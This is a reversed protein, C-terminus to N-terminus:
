QAPQQSYPQGTGEPRNSTVAARCDRAFHGPWFCCFCTSRGDHLPLKGAVLPTIVSRNFSCRGRQSKNPVVGKPKPKAMSSRKKEEWLQKSEKVAKRIRKEDDSDTALPEATFCAVTDWSYKEALLIHKNRELLLDRGEKLKSSPEEADAMDLAEDIKEAVDRNLEYQKKNVAFRFEPEATHQKKAVKPVTANALENQLRKLEAANSQQQQLLQKAWEPPQTPSRSRSRPGHSKRRSSTASCPSEHTTRDDGTGRDKSCGRSTGNPSKNDPELRRLAQSQRSKSEGHKTPRFNVSLCVRPFVFVLAFLGPEFFPLLFVSFSCRMMHGLGPACVLM